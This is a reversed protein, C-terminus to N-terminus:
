RTAGNSLQVHRAGALLVACCRALAGELDVDDHISWDRLADMVLSTLMEGLAVASIIRPLEGCDQAHALILVFARRLGRHERDTDPGGAPAAPESSQGQARLIRRMAIRPERQVRRSLNDMLRELIVEIPEPLLVLRLADEYLLSATLWGVESLVDDKRAFHFYFTTKAVGARAAIEETTTEDFGAEYGRESWLDLAARVIARRTSRSREQALVSRRPNESRATMADEGAVEDAV